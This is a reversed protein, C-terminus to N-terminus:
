EREKLLRTQLEVNGEAKLALGLQNAKRGKRLPQINEKCLELIEIDM